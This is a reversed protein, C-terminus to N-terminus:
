FPLDRQRNSKPRKYQLGVATIPYNNEVWHKKYDMVPGMDYRRINEECLWKVLEVQLLNGISFSKWDDAYSFQQGRYVDGALSGFIYGIDREEHRAFMVRGIGSVALRRLMCDYFTRSPEVTMGCQGIGKWSAEEVALMRSYIQAAQASDKPVHREFTVGRGAVRRTQKRLGRRHKASRRSLFGDLGGELSANCLTASPGQRFEYRSGLTEILERILTGNPVLGSILFRPTREGALAEFEGLLDDLLEVSDPGLLPSGFLWGSEVPGYIRRSERQVLDAAFAVLSGPAERVILKRGPAMAEHFSLQWETRCCFPDVQPTQMAAQNWNSEPFDWEQWRASNVSEPNEELNKHTEDSQL